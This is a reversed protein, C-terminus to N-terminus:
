WFLALYLGTGVNRRVLVFGSVPSHRRKTTGSCFWTSVQTYTEDYWFMVQQSASVLPVRKAVNRQLRVLLEGSFLLVFVRVDAYM